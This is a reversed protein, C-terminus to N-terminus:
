FDDPITELTIGADRIFRDTLAFKGRADFFYNTGRSKGTFTALISVEPTLTIYVNDGATM